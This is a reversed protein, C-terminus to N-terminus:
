PEDKFMNIFLDAIDSFGKIGGIVVENAVAQVVMNFGQELASQNKARERQLEQETSLANVKVDYKAYKNKEAELHNYTKTLDIAGQFMKNIVYEDIPSTDYVGTSVNNTHPPITNVSTNSEEKAKILDKYEM